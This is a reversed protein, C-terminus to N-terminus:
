KNITSKDFKAFKFDNNRTGEVNKLNLLKKGKMSIMSSDNPLKTSSDKTKVNLRKPKEGKFESKIETFNNKSITPLEKNKVKAKEEETIVNAEPVKTLDLKFGGGFGPIKPMPKAAKTTNNSIDKDFKQINKSDSDELKLNVTKNFIDHTNRELDQVRSRDEKTIQNAEPVNNLNLKFGLSSGFGFTPKSSDEKKAIVLNPNLEPPPVFDYGSSSSSSNDFGLKKEKQRFSDQLVQAQESNNGASSRMPQENDDINQLDKINLNDMPKDEGKKTVKGLDLALNFGGM